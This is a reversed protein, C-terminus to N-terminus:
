FFVYNLGIQFQLNLLSRHINDLGSYNLEYERITHRSPKVAEICTANTRYLHGRSHWTYGMGIRLFPEWRWEGSSENLIFALRYALHIQQGTSSFTHDEYSICECRGSATREAQTCYVQSYRFPMRAYGVQIGQRFRGAPGDNHLAIFAHGSVLTRAESIGGNLLDGNKGRIWTLTGMGVEASWRSGSALRTEASLTFSPTISIPGTLNTKLHLRQCVATLGSSLLFAISLIIYGTKKSFLNRPM